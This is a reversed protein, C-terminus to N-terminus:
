LPTGARRRWDAWTDGLGLVLAGVGVLMFALAAFLQLVPAFLMVTAVALTVGLSGPAVFWALVGFGRVAYLAGFFVLLNKGVGRMSALTPLLVITLGVILGWVLQDNFRFERLPRLPNGLRARSLRHYTAWALALAALSQLALLAPFVAVGASALATLQKDTEAPMDALTPVKAVMEQWQQPYADIATRFKTMTEANRRAFEEAVTKSAQSMTVPGLVSMIAALGLTVGLAVSARGFLGGRPNFLCVLGFSGALLLSWGRELNSFSSGSVAPQLAMGVALGVWVIALFARGGAWWGVLTCAALAPVFLLMTDEFPLIARVHPIMPVIVFLALAILLKGWGRESLAPAPSTGGAPTTNSAEPSTPATM